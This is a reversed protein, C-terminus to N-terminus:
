DDIVMKGLRAIAKWYDKDFRDIGGYLLHCFAPDRSLAMQFVEDDWVKAVNDKNVLDEISKLSRFKPIDEFLKAFYLNLSDKQQKELDARCDKVPKNLENLDTLLNPAITIIPAGAVGLIQQVSRFSAALVKTSFGGINSILMCHRVLRVGIDQEIPYHDVGEKKKHWDTLRGVFPSIVSAGAFMCFLAQLQSFILTVNCEIGKSELERAALIGQWTGAIKIYLRNKDVQYAKAIDIIKQAKKVTDTKSFSLHAPVELSVKGSCQQLIEGACFVQLHIALDERSDDNQSDKWGASALADKFKKVDVRNEELEKLLLSPNTTFDTSNFERVSKYNVTDASIRSIKSLQTLSNM